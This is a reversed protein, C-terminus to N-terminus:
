RHTPDIPIGYQSCIENRCEYKGDTTLHLEINCEACLPFEDLVGLILNAILRIAQIYAERKEPPLPTLQIEIRDETKKVIVKPQNPNM